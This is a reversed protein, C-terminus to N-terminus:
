ARRVRPGHWPPRRRGARAASCPAYRRRARCARAASARARPGRRPARARARRRAARSVPAPASAAAARRMSRASRECNAACSSSLTSASSASVGCWASNATKRKEKKGTEGGERASAPPARRLILPSATHFHARTRVGQLAVRERHDLLVLVAVAVAVALRRAVAVTTAVSNSCVVVHHRRVANTAHTGVVVARVRRLACGRRGRRGCVHVEAGWRARSLCM